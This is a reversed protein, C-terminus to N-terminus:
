KGPLRLGDMVPMHLDMLILQHKNLDLRDLAERGNEAVDIDAGWRELFSKAVFCM